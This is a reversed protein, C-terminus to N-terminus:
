KKMLRSRSESVLVTQVGERAKFDKSAESHKHLLMGWERREIILQFANFDNSHEKRNLRQKEIYLRAM